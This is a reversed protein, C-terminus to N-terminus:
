ETFASSNVCTLFGLSGVNIGFVPKIRDDLQGVVNLITGDGGLVVLLDTERGLDDVTGASALGALAATKAEFLVPLKFREFETGLTRILDAVGPKGTHAILGIKAPRM